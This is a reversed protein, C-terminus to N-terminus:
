SDKHRKRKLAGPFSLFWLFWMSTFKWKKHKNRMHERFLERIRLMKWVPSMEATCPQWESGFELRFWLHRWHPFHESNPLKKPLVHSVLMLFPFKCGQSKQSEQAKRSCQFSFSLSEYCGNPVLKANAQISQSAFGMANMNLADDKLQTLGWTDEWTNMVLM